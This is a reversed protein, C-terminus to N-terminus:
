LLRSESQDINSFLTVMFLTLLPPFSLRLFFVLRHSLEIEPYADARVVAGDM